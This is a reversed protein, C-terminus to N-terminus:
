YDLDSRIVKVILVLIRLYGISSAANIETKSCGNIQVVMAKTTRSDCETIEMGRYKSVIAIDKAAVTRM